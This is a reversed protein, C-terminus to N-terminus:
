RYTVVTYQLAHKPPLITGGKILYDYNSQPDHPGHEEPNVQAGFGIVPVKQGDNVYHSRLLVRRTFM